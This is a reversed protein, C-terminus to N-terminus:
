SVRRVGNLVQPEDVYNEPLAVGSQMAKIRLRGSRAAKRVKTLQKYSFGFRSRCEEETPEKVQRLAVEPAESCLTVWNALWQAVGAATAPLPIADEAGDDSAPVTSTLTRSPGAAAVAPAHGNGYGNHGNSSAPFSHHGNSSAAFGHHGNTSADPQGPVTPTPLPHLTLAPAVPATPAVPAPASALEVARRAVTLEAKRRAAALKRDHDASARIADARDRITKVHRWHDIAERVSPRPLPAPQGSETAPQGSETATPQAVARRRPPHNIWALMVPLTSWHTIWRWGMAPYASRIYDGSPLFLELVMHFMFMGVISMVAFYLGAALSGHDGSDGYTFGCYAAFVTMGLILANAKAPSKRKAVFALSLFLAGIVVGDLTLPTAPVMAGERKLFDKAFGAIAQFSSAFLGLYLLICIGAATNVLRQVRRDKKAQAADVPEQPNTVAIRRARRARAAIALLWCGFLALLVLAVAGSILVWPPVGAPLELTM